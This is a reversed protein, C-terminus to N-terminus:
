NAKFTYANLISNPENEQYINRLQNSNDNTKIRFVIGPEEGDDPILRDSEDLPPTKDKSQDIRNFM